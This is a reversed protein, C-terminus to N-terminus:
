KRSALSKAVERACAIFREVPPSLTRNKLTVLSCPWPPMPLELSLEKLSQLDPNLRLMSVPVASVFHERMSLLSRLTVSLTTVVQPMPLAAARFAETLAAGGPTDSPPSILVADALDALAIRRLRAWRSQKAAVLCIRDYFLVEAQLQETLDGELAKLMHTLVLDAKREHLAAFGIQHTSSEIINLSVKPYRLSFREIVPPLVGGLSTAGAVRVEGVEPNTLFEIDKVGLRLEDFAAQGRRLLAAGYMTMEVGRPSRDFLPVDLAHELAAIAQSVASQSMGLHDGAKAMSGHQVVAFLIHLDRLRVRRGIRSDWGLTKAM